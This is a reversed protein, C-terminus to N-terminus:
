KLHYHIAEVIMALSTESKIFYAPAAKRLTDKISASSADNTLIIVPIHKGKKNQRMINLLAKGSLGPLRLDLLVLNPNKKLALALGEQGDRAKLVQFGEESIKDALIDLMSTDDEVILITKSTFANM